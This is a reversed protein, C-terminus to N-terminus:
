YYIIFYYYNAPMGHARAHGDSAASRGSPSSRQQPSSVGPLSVGGSTHLHSNGTKTRGLDLGSQCRSPKRTCSTNTM